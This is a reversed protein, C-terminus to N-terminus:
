VMGGMSIAGRKCMYCDTTRLIVNAAVSKILEDYKAKYYVANAILTENNILTYRSIDDSTIIQNVLLEAAKYRVADAIIMALPNGEYDMLDRCWIQNVSCKIEVDFTLGSMMNSTSTGVDTFDLINTDVAGAMLFSAWGDQKNTQSNFYPRGTDFNYTRGCCSTSNDKPLNAQNVTYIFFYEVHDCYDNHMPLEIPTPLTYVAHKSATTPLNINYLHENSNNWVQVTIAGTANFVTGIKNIKIIGNVVDACYWRVGTYATSIVRNRKFQNKGISGYFPQRRLEHKRLFEVNADKIFSLIGNNRAINMRQWMDGYDCETLSDFPKLSMGELEDLFLDSNSENFDNDPYCTCATRSLGIINDFCTIDINSPIVSM